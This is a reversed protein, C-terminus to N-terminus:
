HGRRRDGLGDSQTRTPRPGPRTQARRQATHEQPREEEVRAVEARIGPRCGPWTRAKHQPEMLLKTSLM